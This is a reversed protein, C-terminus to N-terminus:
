IRYSKESVSEDVPKESKNGTASPTENEKVGESYSHLRIKGIGSLACLIVEYNHILIEEGLGSEGHIAERVEARDGVRARDGEDGAVM